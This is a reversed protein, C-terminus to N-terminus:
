GKRGRGKTKAGGKKTADASQPQGNQQPQDTPRVPASADDYRRRNAATQPPAEEVPRDAALPGREHRVPPVEAADFSPIPQQQAPPQGGPAPTQQEPTTDAPTTDAPPQGSQGSSQRAEFAQEAARREAERRAKRSMFEDAM